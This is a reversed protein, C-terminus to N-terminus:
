CQLFISLTPVRAEEEKREREMEREGEERKRKRESKRERERKGRSIEPFALFDERVIVPSCRIM